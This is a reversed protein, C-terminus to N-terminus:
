EAAVPEPAFDVITSEDGECQASLHEIPLEAARQQQHAGSFTWADKADERYRVAFEDHHQEEGAVIVKDGTVPGTYSYQNGSDPRSHCRERQPSHRNHETRCPLVSFHDGFGGTGGTGGPLTQCGKRCRSM